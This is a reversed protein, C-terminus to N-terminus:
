TVLSIYDEYKGGTSRELTKLFATITPHVTL